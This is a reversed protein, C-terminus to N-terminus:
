YVMVRCRLANDGSPNFAIHLWLNGTKTSKSLLLEQYGIGEHLFRDHLFAVMQCGVLASPVRIDAACGKMHWSGDAGGVAKNVQRCRYGSNIVIPVQFHNRLPQLFHRALYKINDYVEETRPYNVAKLGEQSTVYFEEWKFNGCHNRDIVGKKMEKKESM